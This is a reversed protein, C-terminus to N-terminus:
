RVVVPLYLQPNAVQVDELSVSWIERGHIGDEAVFFLRDQFPKLWNPLSGVSGPLL